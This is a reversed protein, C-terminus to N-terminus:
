AILPDVPNPSSEIPVTIAFVLKTTYAPVGPAGPVGRAVSEEITPHIIM